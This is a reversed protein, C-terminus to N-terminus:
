ILLWGLLRQKNIEVIEVISVTSPPSIPAKGKGLFEKGRELAEKDNSANLPLAQFFHMKDAYLLVQYKNM